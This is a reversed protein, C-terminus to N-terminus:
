PTCTFGAGSAIWIAGSGGTAAIVSIGAGVTSSALSSCATATGSVYLTEGSGPAVTFTQAATVAFSYNVGITPDNVLTLTVPAGAGTNTFVSGSQAPTTTDSATKVIVPAPDAIAVGARPYISTPFVQASVVVPFAGLLLLLYLTRRM